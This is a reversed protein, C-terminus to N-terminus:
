GCNYGSFCIFHKGSLPARLQLLMSHQGGIFCTAVELWNYPCRSSVCLTRCWWKGSLRCTCMMCFVHMSCWLLLILGLPALTKSCKNTMDTVRQRNTEERVTARFLHNIQIIQKWLDYSWLELEFTSNTPFALCLSTKLWSKLFCSDIYQTLFKHMTLSILVLSCAM